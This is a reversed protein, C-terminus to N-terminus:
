IQMISKQRYQSILSSLSEGITKVSTEMAEIKNTPHLLMATTKVLVEKLLYM